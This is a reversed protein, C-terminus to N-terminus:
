SPRRGEGPGCAVTIRWFFPLGSSTWRPPFNKAGAGAEGRHRRLAARAGEGDARDYSGKVLWETAPLDAKPRLNVIGAPVANVGEALIIGKNKTPRAGRHDSGLPRLEGIGLALGHPRAVPARGLRSWQLGIPESYKTGFYFIQGVEARRRRVASKPCAAHFGAMTWPHRPLPRLALNFEKSCRAANTSVTMTSDGPRRLDTRNVRQRLLRGIGGDLCARSIRPTTEASPAPRFEARM